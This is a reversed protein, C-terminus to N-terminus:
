TEVAAEAASLLPDDPVYTPKRRDRKHDPTSPISAEMSALARECCPPAVRVSWALESATLARGNLLASLVNARAPDGVLAGVESLALGSSM